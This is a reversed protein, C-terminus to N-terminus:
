LGSCGCLNSATGGISYAHAVRLHELNQVEEDRRWSHEEGSLWLVRDRVANLGASLFTKGQSLVEM